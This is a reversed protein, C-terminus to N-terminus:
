MIEERVSGVPEIRAADVAEDELGMGSGQAKKGEADGPAMPDIKAGQIAEDTGAVGGSSVHPTTHQYQGHGGLLHIRAQDINRDTGAVGQSSTDLPTGKKTESALPDIKAGSSTTFTSTATRHRRMTGEAWCFSLM